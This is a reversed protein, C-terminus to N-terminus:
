LQGFHSNFFTFNMGYHKFYKFVCVIYNVCLIGIIICEVDVITFRFIANLLVIHRHMSNKLSAAVCLEFNESLMICALAIGTCGIAYDLQIECRCMVRTYEEDDSICNFFHRV